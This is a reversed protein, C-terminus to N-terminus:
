SLFSMCSNADEAIYNGRVPDESSYWESWPCDDDWQSKNHHNSKPSGGSETSGAEPEQVDDDDDEDYPLTCYTLKM